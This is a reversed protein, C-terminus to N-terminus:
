GFHRQLGTRIEQEREFQAVMDAAQEKITEVMESETMNDVFLKREEIVDSAPVLFPSLLVESWHPTRRLALSVFNSEGGGIFETRRYEVTFHYGKPAPLKM